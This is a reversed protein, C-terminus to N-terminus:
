AVTPRPANTKGEYNARIGAGAAIVGPATRGTYGKVDRRVRGIYDNNDAMAPSASGMFAAGALAAGGLIMARRSIMVDQTATAAQDSTAAIGGFAAAITALGTTGGDFSALKGQAKLKRYAKQVAKRSEAEIMKNTSKATAQWWSKRVSPRLKKDAAYTSNYSAKEASRTSPKRKRLLKAAEHQMVADAYARHKSNFSM